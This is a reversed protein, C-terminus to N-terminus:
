DHSCAWYVWRGEFRSVDVVRGSLACFNNSWYQQSVDALHKKYRAIFVYLPPSSYILAAQVVCLGYGADDFQKNAIFLLCYSFCSIIWSICFSYWTRSRNIPGTSSGSVNVKLRQIAKMRSLFASSLLFLMGFGGSLQLVIFAKVASIDADIQSTDTRTIHM